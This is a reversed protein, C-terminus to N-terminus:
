CDLRQAPASCSGPNMTEHHEEDLKAPHKTEGKGQKKGSSECVGVLQPLCCAGATDFPQVPRVHGTDLM